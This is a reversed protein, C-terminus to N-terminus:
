RAFAIGLGPVTRAGRQVAMDLDKQQAKTWEVAGRQILEPWIDSAAKDFITKADAPVVYWDKRAVEHDLQGPAWGAYGAYVRLPRKADAMVEQLMVLSPSAYIDGSVHRSEQPPSNAQFLFFMRAQAVPGGVYVTDARKEVGEMGAFVQALPVETPRNIILGLAGREDYEVLLIVTEAFNPDEMGRHAVLLHGRALSTPPRVNGHVLLVGSLLIGALVLVTGRWARKMAWQYQKM